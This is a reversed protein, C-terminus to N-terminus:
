VKLYVKLNNRTPDTYYIKISPAITDVVKVLITKTFVNNRDRTYDSLPNYTSAGDSLTFRVDYEGVGLVTSSTLESYELDLRRQGNFYYVRQYAYRVSNM